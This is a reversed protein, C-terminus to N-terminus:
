GFGGFLGEVNRSAAKLSALARRTRGALRLMSPLDGPRRALGSVAAQWDAKGEATVARAALAPLADGATDAIARLALFPLGARAAVAAVAHSEMDVALCASAAHAQSKQAVTLLTETSGYIAGSRLVSASENLRAYLSRHWGDHCPHDQGSPSRISEALVLDGVDLAPHLAGAIGFSLLATAGGAVLDEALQVARASDAGACVVTIRRSSGAGSAAILRAESALGTVIGLRPATTSM